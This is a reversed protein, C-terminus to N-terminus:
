LCFLDLQFHTFAIHRLYLSCRRNVAVFRLLIHDVGQLSLDNESGVLHVFVPALCMMACGLTKVQRLLLAELGMLLPYIRMRHSPLALFLEVVFNTLIDLLGGSPGSLAGDFGVVYGGRLQFHASCNCAELGLFEHLRDFAVKDARVLFRRAVKLVVLKDLIAVANFVFSAALNAAREEGAVILSDVDPRM